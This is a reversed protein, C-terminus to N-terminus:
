TASWNLALADIRTGADDAGLGAPQGVRASRRRGDVLGLLGNRPGSTARGVRGRGRVLDHIPDQHLDLLARSTRTSSCCDTRRQRRRRKLMRDVDGRQAQQDAPPQDALLTPGVVAALALVVLVLLPQEAEPHSQQQVVDALQGDGCLDQVLGALQGFLLPLDHLGVRPDPTSRIRSESRTTGAPGRRAHEAVVLAPVAGAIGVALTRGVDVLHRPDCGHGVDVDRDGGLASWAGARGGVLADALDEGAGLMATRGSRRGIDEGPTTAGTGARSSISSASPRRPM